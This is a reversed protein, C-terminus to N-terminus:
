DLPWFGNAAIRVRDEVAVLGSEEEIRLSLHFDEGPRRNPYPGFARVRKRERRRGKASAVGPSDRGM